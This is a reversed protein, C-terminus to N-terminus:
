SNSAEYIEPINLTPLCWVVDVLGMKLCIFTRSLYELFLSIVKICTAFNIIEYHKANM